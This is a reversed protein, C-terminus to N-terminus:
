DVPAKQQEETMKSPDQLDGRDGAVARPVAEDLCATLLTRSSPM